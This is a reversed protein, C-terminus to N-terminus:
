FSNQMLIKLPFTYILGRKLGLPLKALDGNFNPVVHPIVYCLRTCIYNNNLCNRNTSLCRLAFTKSPLTSLLLMYSSLVYKAHKSISTPGLIGIHWWFRTSHWWEAFEFWLILGLDAIALKSVSWVSHRFIHKSVLHTCDQIYMYWKLQIKFPCLKCLARVMKWIEYSPRRRHEM